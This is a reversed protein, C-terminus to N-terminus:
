QYTVSLTPRQSATGYESSRVIVGDTTGATRIALGNNAVSGNVWGQVLALGAANLTLSYTGTSAPTFSGILTGQNGAINANAWTVTSESWVSGNRAYLNYAGSSVNSVRLSVRASTVTANTPISSTNWKILTVLEGNSGDSGDAELSTSTGYNNGTRGSAVYSDQTGSYGNLGDRFDVTVPTSGGAQTTASATNTYSSNGATNRARVRYFYTTSATLGSNAYSAVNSAVTTILSWSTGNLSREIDFGTENDSNDVWSLNINSSSSASATLGSPSAPPTPPTTNKTITFYDRVVGNNNLYKFDMTDGNVDIVMSGLENLSVYMAPHNLTGGSTKGSAGVVSYVAGSHPQSGNKVYAGTGDVRGSGGDIEFSSNYTGSLGYHGDIFKSREYSHSHGTLVVDVGYNELVPLFNQRMDILNGETDSNHSGKTYPPHHWIAVLWDATVNALDSQMWNMMAGSTSRSTENSDLVIFHINGYDFSYYAETGSAVGGVEGNKPFTHINYYPGTQSASDASAGDHNGLTSWVPTQRFMQPYYNFMNSQYEADTGSNYANDGLMLWLDTYTSGTYNRYANYVASQSSTGTGADGIVWIRTPVATGSTPSTEFFYTSDGAHISASDGVNYYYRTLPNLGTVNVIHETTVTPDSVESTLSGSSSGFQVRSNTAVDTRWRVVMSDSDGMQLYPGRVVTAAMAVSQYVLMMLMAGYILGQKKQFLFRM